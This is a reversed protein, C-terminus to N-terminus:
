HLLTNMKLRAIIDSADVAGQRGYHSNNPKYILTSSFGSVKCCDTTSFVQSGTAPDDSPWIPITGNFYIHDKIPNGSLNQNYTKCRSKLYSTRDSYYKKSLLTSSPKIINAEPNCAVCVAKEEVFLKDSSYTFITNNKEAENSSKTISANSGSCTACNSSSNRGLFVESGPTNFPMGVASIGSGSYPTPILQKRWHKIPRAKFAPGIDKETKQIPRSWSPLASNTSTGKWPVYPQGRNNLMTIQTFM